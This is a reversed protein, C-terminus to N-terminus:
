ANGDILRNSVFQRDIVSLRSNKSKLRLRHIESRSPLYTVGPYYGNEHTSIMFLLDEKPTHNELYKSKASDLRSIWTKEKKSFVNRYNVQINGLCSMYKTILPRVYVKGKIPQSDKILDRPFDKDMKLDEIDLFPSISTQLDQYEGDDLRRHSIVSSKLPPKFHQSHDRLKEAFRFAHNNKSIELVNQKIENLIKTNGDALYISLKRRYERYSRASSLFNMLRRVHTMFDSRIWEANFDSDIMYRTASHLLTTEFEIYNEVVHDFVKELDYLYGLMKIAYKINDFEKKSLKVPQSTGYDLTYLLYEM